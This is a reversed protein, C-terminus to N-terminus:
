SLINLGVPITFPPLSVREGLYHILFNLEKLFTAWRQASIADLFSKERNTEAFHENGFNKFFWKVVAKFYSTQICHWIRERRFRPSHKLKAISLARKTCERM